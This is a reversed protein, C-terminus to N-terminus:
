AGGNSANVLTAPLAEKPYCVETVPLGHSHRGSRWATSIRMTERLGRDKEAAINGLSPKKQKGLRIRAVADPVKRTVFRLGEFQRNMITPAFLRTWFSMPILYKFDM